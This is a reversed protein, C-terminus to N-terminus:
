LLRRCDGWVWLEQHTETHRLCFIIHGLIAKFETKYTLMAKLEQDEQRLRRLVPTVPKYVM